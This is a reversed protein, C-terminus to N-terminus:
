AAPKQIKQGNKRKHKETLIAPALAIGALGWWVLSLTDDAWAHSILNIFSIGILSALLIQALIDQKRRWLERAVMINIAIFLIIGAIGVEQGIQLYYNEAIRAAFGQNRFSAPGATGPGEGIPDHLIDEVGNRLASNRIENSSAASVSQKSTHLFVDQVTQSSRFFIYLGSILVVGLIGSVVLRKTPRSRLIWGFSVIALMLGVLASRSYSYFLVILAATVFSLSVYIHKRLKLIAAPIVIILYAGLPNAGRLTSQLRTYDINADVTQYAPITTSKYGFHKLFDSPLLMKQALGFAVVAAAPWLVFKPWHSKLFSSCSAVVACLIFFYIFRLNIILAYTLASATVQHHSYAWWGLAIHLIVYFVFLRVIWSRLLWQRTHKFGFGLWLGAPLILVILIEKWIRILDMHGTSSGIWTSLLAHFPLLTLIGAILWSLIRVLNVSATRNM